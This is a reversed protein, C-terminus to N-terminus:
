SGPRGILGDHECVALRVTVQRELGRIRPLDLTIVSSGDAFHTVSWTLAAHDAKDGVWTMLDRTFDRIVMRALEDQVRDEDVDDQSGDAVFFPPWTRDDDPEDEHDDREPM